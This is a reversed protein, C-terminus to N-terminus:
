DKLSAQLNVLEPREDLDLTRRVQPEEEARHVSGDTHLTVGPGERGAARDTLSGLLAAKGDHLFVAELPWLPHGAGFQRLVAPSLEAHVGLSLVGPGGRTGGLGLGPRM